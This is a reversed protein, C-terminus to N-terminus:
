IDNEAKLLLKKYFIRKATPQQATITVIQLYVSFTRDKLKQQKLTDFINLDTKYATLLLSEAIRLRYTRFTFTYENIKSGEVKFKL